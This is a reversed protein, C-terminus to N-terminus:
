QKMMFGCLLVEIISLSIGGFSSYLEYNGLDVDKCKKFELILLSHLVIQLIGIIASFILMVIHTQNVLKKSSEYKELKNKLDHGIGGMGPYWLQQNQPQQIKKGIEGDYDQKNKQYTTFLHENCEKFMGYYMLAVALLSVISIMSLNIYWRINILVQPNSNACKEIATMQVINLIIVAICYFFLFLKFKQHM